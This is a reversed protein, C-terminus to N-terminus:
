CLYKQEQIATCQKTLTKKSTMVKLIISELPKSTEDLVNQIYKKNFKKKKTLLYLCIYNKSNKQQLIHM